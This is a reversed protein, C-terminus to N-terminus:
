IPDYGFQACRFGFIDTAYTNFKTSFRRNDASNDVESCKHCLTKPGEEPARGSQGEILDVTFLAFFVSNKQSFRTKM